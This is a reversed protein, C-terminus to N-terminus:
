RAVLIRVTSRTGDLDARAFYIGPGPRAGIGEGGGSWTLRHVGAALSGSYLTARKRGALDYVAVQAREVLRPLSLVVGVGSEFGPALGFARLSIESFERDFVPAGVVVACVSGTVETGDTRRATLPMAVELGAPCGPCATAYSDLWSDIVEDARFQLELDDRGDFEDQVTSCAGFAPSAVAVGDHVLVRGAIARAAGLRVSRPDITSVDVLPTGAIVLKLARTEGYHLVAEGGGAGLRAAVAPLAYVAGGRNMLLTIGGDTGVAVDPRADEDFDAVAADFVGYSVGFDQREGYTGDPLGRRITVRGPNAAAVLDPIGDGDFDAVDLKLPRGVVSLPGQERAFVGGISKLVLVGSRDSRCWLSGTGALVVPDFRPGRDLVALAYPAFGTEMSDVLAFSADGRGRYHLLRPTALFSADGAGILLDAIGDHDLDTVAIADPTYPLFLDGFASYSFDAGALFMRVARPQTITIAFDVRGDQDFDGAGLDFANLGVPRSARNTLAFGEGVDDLVFAGGAIAALEIKGDGDVDVAALARISGPLIRGVPTEFTGDGLGRLFNVEGPSGSAGVLLDVHGDRDFDAAVVHQSRGILPVERAGRLGGAGDGRWVFVTSAVYSSCDSLAIGTDSREVAAVDVAPDGDFRGVVIPGTMQAATRTPNVLRLGTASGRLLCQYRDAAVVLDDDGDGDLDAAATGQALGCTPVLVPGAFTGDRRGSWVAVFYEPPYRPSEPIALDPVGDGDFDGASGLNSGGPGDYLVPPGFAGRGDNMMLTFGAQANHHLVFLDPAGDGDLDGALLRGPPVNAATTIPAAFAGTHRGFWTWISRSTPDSGVLDTYGDGDFDRAILGESGSRFPWEMPVDFTGDGHGPYIRLQAEGRGAVALDVIGDGNLEAIAFASAGRADVRVAPAFAGDGRAVLCVIGADDSVVIDDVGDGTLDGTALLSPHPGVALGIFDSDLLPAAFACSPLLLFTAALLLRRAVPM